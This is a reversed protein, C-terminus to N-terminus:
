NEFQFSSKEGSVDEFYNLSDTRLCCDPLEGSTKGLKCARAVFCSTKVWMCMSQQGTTILYFFFDQQNKRSHLETEWIQSNCYASSCQNKQLRLLSFNRNILFGLPRKQLWNAPRMRLWNIHMPCEPCIPCGRCVPCGLCQWSLIKHLHGIIKM